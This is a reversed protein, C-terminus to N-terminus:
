VDNSFNKGVKITSELHVLLGSLLRVALLEAAHFHLELYVIHFNVVHSTHDKAVTKKSELFFHFRKSIFLIESM